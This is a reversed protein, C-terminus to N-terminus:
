VANFGATLLVVEGPCWGARLLRWRLFNDLGWEMDWAEPNFIM